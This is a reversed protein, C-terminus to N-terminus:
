FRHRVGLNLGVLLWPVSAVEKKRQKIVTPADQLQAEGGMVVAWPGRAPLAVDLAVRAGVGLTSAADTEGELTASADLSFVLVEARLVTELAATPTFTFGLGVGLDVWRLDIATGPSRISGVAYGASANISIPAQWPRAGFRAAAGLRPGAGIAGTGVLGRADAAWRREIPPPPPVPPPPAPEGVMSAATFGVARWREVEDDTEAFALTRAADSRGSNAALEVRLTVLTGSEWEIRVVAVYPEVPPAAGSSPPAAACTAGRLSASCAAVLEEVHQPAAPERAAVELSVIPLM